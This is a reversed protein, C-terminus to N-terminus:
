DDLRVDAIGSLEIAERVVNMVEERDISGCRIVIKAEIGETHAGDKVTPDDFDSEWDAGQMMQDLEHQSFGLLSVDFDELKLAAVEAALMDLDWGANLALKNDALIYARRQAQTLHSLIVCPVEAMGLFKAAMLRGHGALVGKDGDILIPATFGFEEISAVIQSVQEDTHTRANKEYPSLEGIPVMTLAPDTM